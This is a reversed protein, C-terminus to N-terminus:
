FELTTAEAEDLSSYGYLRCTNEIIMAALNKGENSLRVIYRGYLYLTTDSYTMLEGRLYTEYSTDTETDEKTHINRAHASIKPYKKSLEEMWSVQIETIANIVARKEDSVESLRKEIEKYKEPATSEMMRGYKETILNRGECNANNFDNIFSKLLENTWAMYQSKRMISFTTWNDQCEARGGENNVKDFAEWELQVLKDVLTNKEIEYVAHERLYDAYVGLYDSECEAIAHEKLENRIIDCIRDINKLIIDTNGKDACKELRCPTSAINGLARCIEPIYNGDIDCMSRYLWKEYPAFKGYILHVVRMTSKLFESVYISATVSDGRKMMRAYNYQGSQAMLALENAIRCIKVSQPYGKKIKSIEKTLIGKNDEFIMGGSLAALGSEDADLWENDNDPAAKLNILRKFLGSIKCIGVRGNAHPTVVRTIGMYTKPLSNYAETLKEGIKDYVDDTLWICFGAGFDHDKSYEDDYGMCESGEGILGVAMDNVYDSFERYLMDRGFAKYYKYCLELGKINKRGGSKEYAADLKESVMDYFNNKGMHLEIESLAKEYYEAAQSFDKQIYLLDGIGALVASYHFDSPTLGRFIKDAKFLYKEAEDIRNLKLLSAALNSSSIAIKQEDGNKAAMDLAKELYECSKEWEETQQYLLSINNYLGAYLMDNKDLSKDYIEMVTNYYEFAKEYMDAARYANAANLLTTAYETRGELGINKMLRIVDEAYKISKEFKGADRYFGVAENYLTIMCSYDKEKEANGLQEIIYNEANDIECKDFYYDLQKLIKETDM